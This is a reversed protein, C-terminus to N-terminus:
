ESSSFIWPLDGKAAGKGVNLNIGHGPRVCTDTPAVFEETLQVPAGAKCGWRVNDSCRLGAPVNSTRVFGFRVRSDTSFGARHIRVGGM